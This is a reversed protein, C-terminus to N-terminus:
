VVKRKDFHIEVGSQTIMVNSKLTQSIQTEIIRKLASLDVKAFVDKPWSHSLHGTLTRSMGATLVTLKVTHDSEGEKPLFSVLVGPIPFIVSTKFFKDDTLLHDM